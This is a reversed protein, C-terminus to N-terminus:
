LQARWDVLDNGDLVLLVEDNAKARVAAESVAVSLVSHRRYARKGGPLFEPWKSGDRQLKRVRLQSALGPTITNGRAARTLSHSIAIDLLLASMKVNRTVTSVSLLDMAADPDHAATHRLEAFNRVLSEASVNGPFRPDVVKWIATLESWGKALGVLIVMTEVDSTQINSGPWSFFLDHGVLSGTSFSMLTQALENVLVPRAANDLDRFRRPLTQVIRNSYPVTGGSLQSAPIRAQTLYAAWESARERVFQEFDSLGQIAAGRFAHDLVAAPVGPPPTTAFDVIEDIKGLRQLLRDAAAV